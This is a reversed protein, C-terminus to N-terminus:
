CALPMRKITGNIRLKVIRATNHQDTAISRTLLSAAQEDLKRSESMRGDYIMNEAQALRGRVETEQFETNAPELARLEANIGISRDYSTIAAALDGADLLQDGVFQLAFALRNKAQANTPERELM